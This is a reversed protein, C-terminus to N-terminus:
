LLTAQGFFAERSPYFQGNADIYALNLEALRIELATITVKFQNRLRYLDSFGTLPAQIVAEVLQQRPMLLSGMFRHANKEDWSNSSGSSRYVVFEPQEVCPLEFLSPQRGWQGREMHLEWHGAEHALTTNYLFETEDFLAQRAENFIVLRKYPVLKALIVQGDAEQIPEWLLGLDLFDEAIHEVPVPHAITTWSHAQAYESLLKFAAHEVQEPRFFQGPAM